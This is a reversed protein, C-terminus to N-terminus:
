PLINDPVYAIKTMFKDKKTYLVKVCIDSIFESSFVIANKM